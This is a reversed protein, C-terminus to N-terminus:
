KRYVWEPLRGQQPKETRTQLRGNSRFVHRSAFDVKKKKKTRKNMVKEGMTFIEGSIPRLPRITTQYATLVTAGTEDGFLEM